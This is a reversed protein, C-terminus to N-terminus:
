KYWPLHDIDINGGCLIVGVNKLHSYNETFKKSMIAAVAAGASLEIVMKMKKFILKTAEIMEEDTVTLVDDPDVFSSLIPFTLAGCQETKIGEAITDLYGPTKNNPNRNKAKLCAALNKGVPEVVIIKITPKVKKAYLSIGSLLGGGSISVVIADLDPVQELLEYAITGQGCIVDYDDFPNIVLLSQEKSLKTCVEVRSVPNPECFALKAGYGEIAELKVKPTNHPVVVTCPIREYQCAWAMAAGHNGSSHTICGTYKNVNESSSVKSLVANLAGRAKFSGTKQFNDCKFYIKKNLLNNITSSIHIPTRLLIPSIRNYADVINDYNAKETAM